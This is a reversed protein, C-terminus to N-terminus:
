NAGTEQLRPLCEDLLAELEALDSPTIDITKEM